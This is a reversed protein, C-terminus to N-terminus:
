IRVSSPLNVLKDVIKQANYLSTKQCNKYMNMNSLLSWAPRTRIGRDNTYKLFSEKEDRNGLLIANLWYNSFCEPPQYFFEIGKKDFFERYFAALQRKNEIFENIKEIQACGIAANVNPMRYNYGIEDHVYEWPHPVKATTTVHRIKSAFSEDDTLIMGGGGTTIIKNGNFSLIGAKAFTGTHRSKYLSGISEAADEIVTINYKNCIEIIADIKTPHGFIHVPVCATIRKGSQRNYASGDDKVFAYDALFEELSTPSMGLTEIDCDVFIPDAGCHRIANATAVFTLTQTIVENGYETGSLLLATHLAVTGSSVAIAFHSGTFKCILEEFRTVYKGLYSVFTSDICDSLYKKENGCFVPEHLPIVPKGPYLDRIFNVIDDYKM